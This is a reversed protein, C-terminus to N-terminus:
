ANEDSALGKESELGTQTHCKEKRALDLSMYDFFLSFAAWNFFRNILSVYLFIYVPEPISFFFLRTPLFSIELCLCM